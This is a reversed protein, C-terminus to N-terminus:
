DEDEADFAETRKHMRDLVSEAETRTAYPGLREANPDGQGQEVQQTRLNFWWEELAM